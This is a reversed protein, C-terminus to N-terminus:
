SKDNRLAPTFSSVPDTQNRFTRSATDEKFPKSNLAPLGETKIENEKRFKELNTIFKNFVDDYLMAINNAARRIMRNINKDIKGDRKSEKKDFKLRKLLKRGTVPVNIDYLKKLEDILTDKDKLEEVKQDRFREFEEKSLTKDFVATTIWEGKKNIKGSLGELKTEIIHKSKEENLGGDKIDNLISALHDIMALDIEVFMSASTFDKPFKYETKKDQKIATIIRKLINRNCSQMMGRVIGALWDAINEFFASVADGFDGEQYLTPHPIETGCYEIITQYECMCELQAFSVQLAMFSEMIQQESIPEEVESEQIVDREIYDTMSLM